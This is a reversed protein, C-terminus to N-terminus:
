LLSWDFVQGCNKCTADGLYVINGCKPCSYEQRPKEQETSQVDSLGLIQKKKADFEEQTIIGADLLQKFKLLEDASSTQQVITAPSNKSQKAEDVKKKVFRSVEEMEMDLGGDFTFSNENFFNDKRNNMTSSATELQLYGLQMGSRKYQVGLVDCYYITKEGDSGNGTIFSGVGAKTGIICKDEYVKLYRGRAGRLYYIPTEVTSTFSALSEERAISLECTGWMRDYSCYITTAYNDKAIVEESARGIGVKISIRSERGINYEIQEGRGLKSIEEGNVYLKIKAGIGMFESPAYVIIKGAM